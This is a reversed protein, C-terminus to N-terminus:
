LARIMDRLVSLETSLIAVKAKLEENEARLQEIIGQQVAFKQAIGENKSM